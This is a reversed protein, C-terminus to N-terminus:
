ASLLGCPLIRDTLGKEWLSLRGPETYVQGGDLGPTRLWYSVRPDESSVPLAGRKLAFPTGSCCREEPTGFYEAAEEASLCFVKFAPVYDNGSATECNDSNDGSNQGESFSLTDSFFAEELIREREAFSFATDLFDGNLWSSLDSKEWSAGSGEHHFERADLAYRSVLLASATECNQDETVRFTLWELPAPDGHPSFPFEGMTFIDGPRLDLPETMKLGCLHEQNLLDQALSAAKPHELLDTIGKRHARVFDKLYIPDQKLRALFVGLSDVDMFFYEDISLIEKEANLLRRVEFGYRQNGALKELTERYQSVFLRATESAHSIDYVFLSLVKADRDSKTFVRFGIVALNELNNYLEKVDFGFGSKERALRDLEERYFNVFTEFALPNKAREKSIGSLYSSLEYIGSFIFEGFTVIEGTLFNLSKQYDDERIESLIRWEEAQFDRMNVLESLCGEDKARNIAECFSDLDTFSFVRAGLRFETPCNIIDNVAELSAGDPFAKKLFALDKRGENFRRALDTIGKRATVTIDHLLSEPSAHICGNFVLARRPTLAYAALLPIREFPCDDVFNGAAFLHSELACASCLRAYNVLYSGQLMRRAVSIFGRSKEITEPAALALALGEQFLMDGLNTFDPFAKQFSSTIRFLFDTYVRIDPLFDGTLQPAYNLCLDRERPCDKFAEALAGSVLERIGIEPWRFLYQFLERETLFVEGAISIGGGPYSIEAPISEIPIRCAARCADLDIRLAPRVGIYELGTSSGGENIGGKCGVIMARKGNNVGPSRLWWEISDDWAFVFKTKRVYDTPLASTREFPFQFYRRVEDDSLCFVKDGPSKTGSLAEKGFLSVGERAIYKQERALFAEQLFSTNLWDRLSCHKWDAPGGGINFPQADLVQKSVLLLHHRSVSVVQWEIPSVGSDAKQPYRGFYITDGKRAMVFNFFANRDLEADIM